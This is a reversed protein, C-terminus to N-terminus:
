SFALVVTANTILTKCLLIMHALACGIDANQSRRSHQLAVAFGRRIQTDQSSAADIEKWESNDDLRFVFLSDAGLRFRISESIHPLVRKIVRSHSLTLSLSLSGLLISSSSLIHVYGSIRPRASAACMLHTDGSQLSGQDRNIAREENQASILAM